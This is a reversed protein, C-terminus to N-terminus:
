KEDGGGAERRRNRILQSAPPRQQKVAGLDGLIGEEFEDRRGELMGRRVRGGRASLSCSEWAAENSPKGLWAAESWRRSDEPESDDQVSVPSM